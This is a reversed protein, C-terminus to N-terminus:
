KSIIEIPPVTKGELNVKIVDFVYGQKELEIEYGGNPLPTATQFQGLQNTKLARLPNGKDDRIEIIAGDVIKKDPTHVYGVIINPMTPPTPIAMNTLYKPGVSRGFIVNKIPPPKPIYPMIPKARPDTPQVTPPKAPSLPASSVIPQSPVSPTPTKIEPTKNQLPPQYNKNKSQWLYLTPSYIRKFFAVIWTDIPRGEFPVFAMALGTIVFLLILPWKIFGPPNVGYVILALIIGTALKGFQKLTMDGVLRFEYSTIPQPVPHQEMKKLTLILQSNHTPSPNHPQTVKGM